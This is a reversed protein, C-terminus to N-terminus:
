NGVSIVGYKSVKKQFRVSGTKRDIIQVGLILTSHSNQAKLAFSPSLDIVFGDQTDRGISSFQYVKYLGYKQGNRLEIETDPKGSFCALVNTHNGSFECTILAYYPYDKAIRAREADEAQKREEEAKKAKAAEEALYKKGEPSELWKRRKEEDAVKIAKEKEIKAIKELRNSEAEKTEWIGKKIEEGKLGAIVARRLDLPRRSADNASLYGETCISQGLGNGLDCQFNERLEIRAIKDCVGFIRKAKESQVRMYLKSVEPSGDIKEGYYDVGFNICKMATTGTLKEKVPIWENLIIQNIYIEGNVKCAPANNPPLGWKTVGKVTIKRNANQESNLNFNIIYQPQTVITEFNGVGDVEVNVACRGIEVGLNGLIIGYTSGENNQAHAVNTLMMVSLAIVAQKMQHMEHEEQNLHETVCTKLSYEIVLRKVNM